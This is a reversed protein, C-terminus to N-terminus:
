VDHNGCLCVLPIDPDIGSWIDQFDKNQADQIEDGKQRNTEDKGYIEATMHVLDGGKKTDLIVNKLLLFFSVLLHSCVFSFLFSGHRAPTACDQEASSLPPRESM